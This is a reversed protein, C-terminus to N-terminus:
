GFALTIKKINQLLNTQRVQALLLRNEFMQPRSLDVHLLRPVHQADVRAHQGVLEGSLYILCCDKIM